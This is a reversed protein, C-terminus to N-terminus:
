ILTYQPPPPIYFGHFSFVYCVSIIMFGCYIFCQVYKYYIYLYTGLKKILGQDKNGTPALLLLRCIDRWADQSELDRVTLTDLMPGVASIPCDAGMIFTM